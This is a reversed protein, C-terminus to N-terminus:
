HSRHAPLKNQIVPLLIRTVLECIQPPYFAIDLLQHIKRKGFGDRDLRDLFASWLEFSTLCFSSAM